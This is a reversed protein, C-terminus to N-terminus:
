EVRQSRQGQGEKETDDQNKLAVLKTQRAHKHPLVDKEADDDASAGHEAVAIQEPPM